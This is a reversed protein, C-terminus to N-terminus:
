NYIANVIVEALNYADEVCDNDLWQMSINFLMGAYLYPTYNNLNPYSRDFLKEFNINLYELYLYELRAKRILKLQEKHKCFKDMIDFVIQIYDDKCRPYYHQGSAYEKAVSDFYYVIIDEKSKFYRYFTARGVGAKKVIDTVSIDGYEYDGMLKFLATIIYHRSYSEQGYEM